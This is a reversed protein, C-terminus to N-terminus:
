SFVRLFLKLPLGPALVFNSIRQILNGQNGPCRKERGAKHKSKNQECSFRAFWVRLIALFILCVHRLFVVINKLYLFVVFKLVFILHMPQM